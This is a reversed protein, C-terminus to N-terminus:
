VFIGEFAADDIERESLFYEELTGHTKQIESVAGVFSLKRNRLMAIRDIGLELERLNHSTVLITAGTKTVYRDLLSKMVRRMALDLGDFIEDLLLYEPMTSFALIIGAQRRM